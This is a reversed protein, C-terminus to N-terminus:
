NKYVKLKQGININNDSLGNLSKIQDVSMGFKRSLGFLTDGQQVIYNDIVKVPVIIPEEEVKKKRSRKKKGKLAEKDFQYLENQEILAILKKPYQRDTAYGAKKLGKAWSKYDDQRLDFLSAYRRRETLFKSHDEYSEYPDDYKRFCEKSRDDDHYIREGKWGHCKIGFHNNAERALRGNGSGSELIGQALTISAPIGYECMKDISIDAYAAIYVDIASNSKPTRITRSAPSELRVQEEPEEREKKVEKKSEEVPPIEPAKKVESTQVREKQDKKKTVIGKKPGCSVIWIFLCCSFLRILYKFM